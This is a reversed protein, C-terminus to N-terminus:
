SGWVVGGCGVGKSGEFVCVICNMSNVYQWSRNGSCAMVYFCALYSEKILAICFLPHAMLGRIVIVVHTLPAICSCDMLLTFSILTGFVLM